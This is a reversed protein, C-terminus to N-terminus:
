RKKMDYILRKRKKERRGPAKEKIKEWHHTKPILGDYAEDSLILWNKIIGDLTYCACAHNDKIATVCRFVTVERALWPKRGITDGEM